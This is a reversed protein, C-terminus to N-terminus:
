ADQPNWYTSLVRYLHAVQHRADDLADHHVGQREPEPTPFLNKLTRYCRDQDYKWPVDQGAATYASRLITNDFGVGNGWIWPQAQASHAVQNVFETFEQLARALNTANPDSFVRRAEDSQGMWWGITKPSVHLGLNVSSELNIARYFTRSRHGVGFEAAGIAIIAANPASSLTELDLMISRPINM